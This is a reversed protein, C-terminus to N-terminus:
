PQTNMAWAREWIGIVTSRDISAPAKVKLAAAFLGSEYSRWREESGRPDDTLTLLDEAILALADPTFRDPFAGVMSTIANYLFGSGCSLSHSWLSKRESHIVTWNPAAPDRGVASLARSIWSEKVHETRSWFTKTVTRTRGSHIDMEFRSEKYRRGLMVILVAMVAFALAPWSRDEKEDTRVPVM